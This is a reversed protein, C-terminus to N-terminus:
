SLGPPAAVPLTFFFSTGRGVESEVWIRGGHGEVLAKAIALGLGAGGRAGRRAQWFREFIRERDEEAIGQGTDSVHFVVEAGDQEAAVTVVGRAPTYRIANAILNALVRQIRHPDVQVPPADEACADRLELDAAEAQERFLDIAARVLERPREAELQLSLQGADSRVIEVLDDLLRVTQQSARLVRELFDRRKAEPLPVDLLTQTATQVLDIANRLDHSVFALVEDRSKVALEAAERARVLETVDVGHVFIGSVAGDADFLPQYVFNLYVDNVSGDALRRVQVRAGTAGYPRGTRYVGDLLDLHGQGEIEPLAERLPKGIIDRHGILTHYQPNAVEFVHEPGRLVAIAAPAQEFIEALRARELELQAATARTELFLRSNELALGARQAIEQALPLDAGDFRRGSRSQALILGGLREGRAEIPVLIASRLQVRKLLELTDEDRAADRIMEDTIEAHLRPEGTRIVAGTGAPADLRLPDRRGLEELARKQEPDRHAVAVRRIAGEQVLDVACWDAIDPVALEAVERLTTEPDLSSAFVRGAAALFRNASEAKRRQTVDSCVGLVRTARGEEDRLVRGRASLWRVEGDPRRIRYEIEYDEGEGEVARGVAALVRDVDDPHIDEQFAAFTGPFTGHELGHIEELTDSWHLSGSPVDWDWAGLRGSDLAIRLRQENARSAELLRANDVSLAARRALEQVRAVDEPAFPRKGGEETSVTLGGLTRGRVQLPVVISSRPAISRLVRRHEPSRAHSDILEDGIQPEFLVDGTAVAARAPHAPDDLPSLRDLEDLLARKRPDAHAMGVRRLSGDSAALYAISHDAVTMVMLEALRELITEPELSANLVEGARSTLSEFALARKGATIDRAIASAGIITGEADRIPSITLSVDIHRGEKTVRVTEYHEIREGRRLREMVGPLEDPRDPPILMDIRRGVAEDATYGYIREAGANWSLIVGDLDKGIIADDSSDIISALFWDSEGAIGFGPGSRGEGSPLLDQKQPM